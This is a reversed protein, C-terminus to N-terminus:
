LKIKKTVVGDAVNENALNKFIPLNIGIELIAIESFVSM